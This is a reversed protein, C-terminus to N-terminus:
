KHRASPRGVPNFNPDYFYDSVRGGSWNMFVLGMLLSFGVAYFFKDM